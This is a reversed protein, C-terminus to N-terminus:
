HKGSGTDMGPMQGNGGMNMSGAGAMNMGRMNVSGSGGGMRSPRFRFFIEFGVHTGSGYYSNLSSPNTDATVAAGLGTDVGKGHTLDRIYGATYTGVTYKNYQLADALALDKGTKQVNEIRAFFTNADRQYDAEALYANTKGYGQTEVNQGFILSASFNADLGVSKNYLWSATTRHQNVDTGDPSYIFGQSVQFANDADPNYSLRASESDFRLKDFNYRNENPDRGTFKSGELKFRGGLNVGVTAVGFLIHTADEWHHGIPAPMYDYGIVRHMFAPPGLAPEGPDAVYLYASNNGGLRRSYAVSLESVLEHPHQRDHLPQGHWTEGTAYLDPYGYGGEIIPDLSVMARVGIQSRADLPHSIMGMFWSPADFRRDGRKSGVNVYRPAIAGHLMLMSGGRMEAYGYMPSSAPLWSTGSGEQSMPDALDTTSKMADTMGMGSMGAMSIGPLMGEMGLRSSHGMPVAQKKGSEKGMPLMKQVPMGPMQALAPTLLMNALALTIAAKMHNM